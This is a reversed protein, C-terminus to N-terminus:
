WYAVKHAEGLRLRSDLGAVDEFPPAGRRFERRRQSGELGHARLTSGDRRPTCAEKAQALASPFIRFDLLNYFGYTVM